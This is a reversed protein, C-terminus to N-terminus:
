LTLNTTVSDMLLANSTNTSNNVSKRERLLKNELTTMPLTLPMLYSSVLTNKFKLLESARQKVVKRQQRISLEDL